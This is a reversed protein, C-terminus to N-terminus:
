LRSAARREALRLTSAIADVLARRRATDADSREFRAAFEDTEGRRTRALTSHGPHLERM